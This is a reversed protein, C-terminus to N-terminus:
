LEYVSKYELALLTALGCNILTFIWLVRLIEKEGCGPRNYFLFCFRNQPSYVHVSM